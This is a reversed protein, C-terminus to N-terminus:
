SPMSINLLYHFVGPDYASIAKEKGVHCTKLILFFFVNLRLTADRRSNLKLQDCPVHRLRTM